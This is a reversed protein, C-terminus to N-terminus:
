IKLQVFCSDLFLFRRDLITFFSCGCCSCGGFSFPRMSYESRGKRIKIRRRGVNGCLQGHLIMPGALSLKRTRSPFPHSGRPIIVLFSSVRTGIGLEDRALIALAVVSVTRGSLPGVNPQWKCTRSEM